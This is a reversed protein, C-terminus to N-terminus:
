DLIVCRWFYVFGEEMEQDMNFPMLKEGNEDEEDANWEQGAIEDKKLFKKQKKPKEEEDFMDDENAKKRDPQEDEDEDDDDNDSVDSDLGDEKIGRKRRRM